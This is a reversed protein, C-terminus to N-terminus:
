LHRGFYELASVIADKETRIKALQWEKKVIGQLSIPLSDFSVPGNNSGHEGIGDPDANETRHNRNEYKRCKSCAGSKMKTFM